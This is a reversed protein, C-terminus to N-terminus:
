KKSSKKSKSNKKKQKKKNNSNNNNKKVKKQNNKKKSGAGSQSIGKVRKPKYLSAEKLKRKADTRAREVVEQTPTVIKIDGSGVEPAVTHKKKQYPILGQAMDSFHKVWPNTEM